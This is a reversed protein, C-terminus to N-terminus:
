QRKAALGIIEYDWALTGKAKVSRDFYLSGTFDRAQQPPVTVPVSTTAEAISVCSSKDAGRCDRMTVRFSIGDLRYTESRNTVRGTIDYSSRFTPKVAVNEVTVESPLIRSGAKQQVRQTYQYLLFGAVIVTGLLGAASKRYGAVYLIVVIVIPVILWAM